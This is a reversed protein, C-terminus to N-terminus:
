SLLGAAELEAKLEDDSMASVRADEIVVRKPKLQNVHQLYLAAAKMDGGCAAKYISAIVHQIQDPRMNFDVARKEIEDRVRKDKLWANVTERAFGNERSWASRNHPANQPDILWDVFASVHDPLSGDLPWQRPAVHAM